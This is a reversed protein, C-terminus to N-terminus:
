ARDLVDDAQLARGLDRGIDMLAGLKQEPRVMPRDPAPNSPDITAAVTSVTTSEGESSESAAIGESFTFVFDCIRFRSGEVLRIPGSIPRGKVRTGALSGLDCLYYGSPSREVAAHQKSVTTPELFIDSGAGRGIMTVKRDLPYLRGTAPGEVIRLMPPTRRGRDM